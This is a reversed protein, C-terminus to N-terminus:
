NNLAVIEKIFSRFSEVDLSLKRYNEKIVLPRDRKIEDLIPILNKKIYASAEEIYVDGEYSICHSFGALMSSLCGIKTSIIPVGKFLAHYVTLPEAESLYKSPFLLLDINNFFVDREEGYLPQRFDVFSDCEQILQAVLCEDHIPGVAVGRTKIGIKNLRKVTHCFLDIGKEQNMYGMFGLTLTNKAVDEVQKFFDNKEIFCFEKSNDLILISANSVIKVIKIASYVKSIKAKMETCNVVHVAKYGALYFLFSSLYNKKNIYSFSNHHLIIKKFACRAFFIIVVDFIQALGGNLNLYVKSHFPIFAVMCPLLFIMYTLRLLKWKWGPYFRSCWTPVSSIYTIEAGEKLFCAALATVINAYGTVPPAKPGIYLFDKL